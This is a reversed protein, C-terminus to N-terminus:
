INERRTSLVAEFETDKWYRLLSLTIALYRAPRAIPYIGFGQNKENWERPLHVIYCRYIKEGYMEEYGNKYLAVQGFFSPSVWKSTKLDILVLRGKRDRALIDIRGGYKHKRSGIVLESGVYTLGAKRWFKVFKNFMCSKMRDFFLNREVPTMDKTETQRQLVELLLTNDTDPLMYNQVIQLRAEETAGATLWEDCFAHVATGVEATEDKIDDPDRYALDALAPIEEAPFYCMLRGTDPHALCRDKLVRQMTLAVRQKSWNILGEGSDPFKELITSVRKIRKGDLHYGNSRFEIEYLPKTPAAGPFNVQM